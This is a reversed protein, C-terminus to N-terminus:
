ISDIRVTVVCAVMLEGNLSGPIDLAYVNFPRACCFTAFWHVPHSSCRRFRLSNDPAASEEAAKPSQPL